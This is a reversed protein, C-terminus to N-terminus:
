EKNLTANNIDRPGTVGVVLWTPQAAWGRVIRVLEPLEDERLEDVLLAVPLRAQAVQAAITRQAAHTAHASLLMGASLTIVHKGESMAKQAVANLTWSKGAGAAGIIQILEM